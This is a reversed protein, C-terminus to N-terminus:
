KRIIKCYEILKYVSILTLQPIGYYFDIMAFHILAHHFRTTIFTLSIDTYPMEINQEHMLPKCLVPEM